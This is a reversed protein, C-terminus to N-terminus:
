PPRGGVGWMLQREGAREEAKDTELGSIVVQYMTIM